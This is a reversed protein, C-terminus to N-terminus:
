INLLKIKIMLLLLIVLIVLNNGCVHHNILEKIVADVLADVNYELSKYPWDMVNHKKLMQKVLIRCNYRWGHIFGSTHKKYDREHMLVGAFYLNEVNTSEWDWTQKPFKGNYSTM